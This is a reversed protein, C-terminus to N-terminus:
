AAARTRDTSRSPLGARDATRSRRRRSRRDPSGAQARVESRVTGMGLERWLLNRHWIEPRSDSRNTSVSHSASWRSSGDRASRRSRSAAPSRSPACGPRSRDGCRCCRGSSRWARVRRGRARRSPAPRRERGDGALHPDSAVSVDDGVVVPHPAVRSPQDPGQREVTVTSADTTSPPQAFHSASPRRTECRKGCTSGVRKSGPAVGRDERRELLHLGRMPAGPATIKSTRHAGLVVAGVRAAVLAGPVDGASHM